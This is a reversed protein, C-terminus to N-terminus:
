KRKRGKSLFHYPNRFNSARRIKALKRELKQMEQELFLAEAHKQYLRALRYKQSSSKQLDEIRELIADFGKQEKVSCQIVRQPEIGLDVLSQTMAEAGPLDSKNVIFLDCIERVGSKLWQIDDGTEPQLILVTIESLSAVESQTQGSGATEVWVEDFFRSLFVEIDRIAHSFASTSRTSLSRVFLREPNRVERGALRIRDGLLSGGSQPSSPDCALWALTSKEDRKLKALALESILSSKGVGAPGTFCVTHRLSKGAEFYTSLENLGKPDRNELRTITQSIEQRTKNKGNKKTTPVKSKTKM